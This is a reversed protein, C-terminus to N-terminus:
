EKPHQSGRLRTAESILLKPIELDTRNITAERDKKKYIPYFMCITLRHVGADLLLERKAVSLEHVHRAFKKGQVQRQRDKAEWVKQEIDRYELLAQHNPADPALDEAYCAHTDVMYLCWSNVNYICAWTRSAEMLHHMCPLPLQVEDTPVPCAFLLTCAGCPNACNLYLKSRPPEKTCPDM